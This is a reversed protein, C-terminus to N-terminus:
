AEAINLTVCAQKKCSWSVLSNGLIHCTGSPSKRETKCGVYYSDSFVLLVVYVVKLTGYGPM